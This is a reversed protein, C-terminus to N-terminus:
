MLDTGHLFQARLRGIAARITAEPSPHPTLAPPLDTTPTHTDADLVSRLISRIARLRRRAEIM